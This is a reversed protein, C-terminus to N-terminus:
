LKGYYVSVTKGNQNMVYAVEDEKLFIAQDLGSVHISKNKPNFGVSSGDHIEEGGNASMVKVTLM